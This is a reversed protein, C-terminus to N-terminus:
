VLISMIDEKSLSKVFSEETTILESALKRKDHQLALIKEEVTDRTIFKYTFVKREQGIRHARDIAQAEIAPNWWPDLIFVYDAATLNLGVGGAKLSILFIQLKENEQFKEVQAQRDKTSGDLYAYKIKKKDLRSKLIQLHKVFQSFILVKHNEGLISELKYIVDEMKGSDGEYGEDIMRPHNALQRLATLGQLLLLQSQSVGNHEIYDLIKNRYYSKSEEYIKQQTESMDCYQVHDVKEPLERAVQSKHRRLVFPKIINYLRQTKVEDHKKEIPNLFEHRFFHQNGLLGPNVFSIQSWLDMTSNELPTGTLILRNRANFKRVARAINSSPNKIAQSEDLIVYNFFYQKLLDIDIRAIGYSTLIVDYNQFISIDKERSTGIYTFIRLEPTFRRAEVEWNYILSTPLVLLSAQEVGAEKQQQLLALTQVTKGLGMDDALCGGFRYKNLFLMWNYGAKQYPRLTGNFGQPLPVDEIQEFERLKELKRSITVQALNGQELEKILALHHKQLKLNESVHGNRQEETFALLESYRVFWEEPIVAVEGNPLTFERKKQLILNRLKLFAVEFDGFRVIAHIDFWDRNETIELNISSKGLFYRKDDQQQQRITYGQERLAEVHDALWQFGEQRPVRHRNGTGFNLGLTKLKEVVAQECAKKRRIRHFVYSDGVTEVAVSVPQQPDAEFTFAGYAYCLTFELEGDNGNSDTMESFMLVPEPQLEDCTIEFGKAYVDYSEVLPAVFKKFYMEEVKRPITIFKKNLFPKLKNGDVNKEFDYLCNGLLMWAPERCVIMANKYQFDLKEGKYKITPFYHTNDENRRFHFLVTAKEESMYVQRWTPEGDNGMEFIMKDRLLPLIESKRTEIFADIREQLAKDGKEPDYVKLYFDTTSIKKPSFTKVITDHQIQDMLEILRFDTEDLGEAFEPANKASINQHQLTLRGHDDKQVVFSEILYGLYEHGYLSYIIQFPKAKSVHM